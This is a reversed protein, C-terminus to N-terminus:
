NRPRDRWFSGPGTALEAGRWMAHSGSESGAVGLVQDARATVADVHTVAVIRRGRWAASELADLATDLSTPDLAGFGEDLIRRRPRWSLPRARCAREARLAALGLREPLGTPVSRVM